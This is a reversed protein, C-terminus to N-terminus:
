QKNANRFRERLEEAQESSYRSVDEAGFVSSYVATQSERLAEIDAEITATWARIRLPSGLPRDDPKALEQIAWECLEIQLEYLKKKSRDECWEKLTKTGRPIRPLSMRSHVNRANVNRAGFSAQLTQYYAKCLNKSIIRGCMDGVTWTYTYGSFSRLTICYRKDDLHSVLEPWAAEARRILLETAEWVRNDEQWDFKPDFIPFHRTDVLKPPANHNALAEVMARADIEEDVLPDATPSEQMTPKREQGTVDVSFCVIGALLLIPIWRDVITLRKCYM